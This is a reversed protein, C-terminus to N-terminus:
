PWWGVRDCLLGAAASLAKPVTRPLGGVECARALGRIQGIEALVDAKALHEVDGVSLGSWGRHRLVLSHAQGRAALKAVLQAAAAAPRVEAATVVVVHDVEPVAGRPADVVTLGRRGRLSAVVHEVEAAKLEWPDAVTSRPTALVAIGDKTTPLAAVLDGPDIVGKGLHLDPWRAGPQSEVGLLLDLGGSSDVADVVTVPTSEGVAFRGLAAALTSAGVGGCAGTVAVSLHQTGQEVIPTRGLAQLLDHGQAPLVFAQEAHCTMALAYDIPGPDPAVFFVGTRRGLGGVLAATEADAIIHSARPALRAIDRPDSVSVSDNTLAAATHEAEPRLVPDAVAILIFEGSTTTSYTM